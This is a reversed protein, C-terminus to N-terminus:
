DVLQAYRELEAKLVTTEPSHTGCFVHGLVIVLRNPYRYAATRADSGFNGSRVWRGFNPSPRAV